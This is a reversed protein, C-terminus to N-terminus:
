ALREPSRCLPFLSTSGATARGSRSGSTMAASRHRRDWPWRWGSRMPSSWGAISPVSRPPMSVVRRRSSTEGSRSRSSSSRDDPVPVRGEGLLRLAHTAVLAAVAPESAAHRAVGRRWIERRDAEGVSRFDPPMGDAGPSPAADFEWWGNDHEAVARLLLARRPHLRLADSRFLGLLEAAFRAHDAQTVIRLSDELPTVIM